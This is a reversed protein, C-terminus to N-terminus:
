QSVEGLAVAECNPTKEMAKLAAEKSHTFYQIHKAGIQRVGYALPIPEPQAIAATIAEIVSKASNIEARAADGRKRIEWRGMNELQEVMCDVGNTLADLAQQLLARSM